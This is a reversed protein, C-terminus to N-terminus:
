VKRNVGEVKGWIKHRGEIPLIFGTQLWSVRKVVEMGIQSGNGVVSYLLGNMVLLGNVLKM